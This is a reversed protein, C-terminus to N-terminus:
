RGDIKKILWSTPLIISDKRQILEGEMAQALKDSLHQTVTQQNNSMYSIKCINSHQLTFSRWLELHAIFELYFFSLRSASGLLLTWWDM